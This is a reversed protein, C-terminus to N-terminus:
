ALGSELAQALEALETDDGSSLHIWMARREHRGLAEFDGQAQALQIQGFTYGAEPVGLDVGAQRTLMLFVGKNPGGKYAQGTSHLYRPGYELATAVRLRERLAHRLRELPVHLRGDSPLYALIAAYDRERVSSAFADMAASPGTLNGAAVSERLSPSLYVEATDFTADPQRVAGRALLEGALAKAEAVNPEDFPNIGLVAGATATAIMWRVFEGGLDYNDSLVIEEIPHGAEAMEGAWHGLTEDRELRLLVFLRDDGYVGPAEPKEGVIPIVGLGQKGTSEAVLQELWLLFPAIPESALLTLKDRGARAAEAMFAGLKVAENEAATRHAGCEAEMAQARMALEAADVGLLAAPLMGFYTLASYRGGIDAPTAFVERFGERGAMEELPTGPDTLAIFQEGPELGANRLRNKFLAFQSLPEITTGSKSALIFLTRSLDTGSLFTALIDPDTTDLVHLRLLDPSAGFVQSFVLPALSSGGMGLLAADTFGAAPLEAAFEALEGAAASAESGTGLWGLRGGIKERVEEDAKWASLDKDWLKRVFDEETLRALTERARRRIEDVSAPPEAERAEIKAVRRVHREDASFPTDLFADVARLAEGADMAKGGLCLVNVNEDNRAREVVPASYGVAALVGPVKNAAACMGIGTNCVLIGRDGDPGQAVRESVAFAYDPYDVSETTYAGLDEYPVGRAKLHAKLREKLEYGAHDSGLYIM